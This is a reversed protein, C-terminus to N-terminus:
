KVKSQAFDITKNILECVAIHMNKYKNSKFQYKIKIADFDNIMDMFKDKDGKALEIEAAQQAALQSAVEADKIDQLEKAIRNREEQEIKLIADQKEKEKKAAEREAEIIKNAQAREAEQQKKVREREEQLEKEAQEAQQKLKENEKRIREDEIRKDEIEKLRKNEAEKEAEKRALYNSRAGVLFSDWVSNDMTGLNPINFLEFDNLITQREEQLFAIREKEKNAAYDEISQLKEEIGQSAFLQANKWGDVFRGGALYFDKQSKHIAATGTRVKVYKLRLEKAQKSALEIPIKIVENYEKELEAMKDLMPQFQAAIDAAKSEELGFQKPDIKVLMQEM